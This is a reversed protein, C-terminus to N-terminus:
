GPHLFVFINRLHNLLNLLSSQFIETKMVTYLQLPYMLFLLSKNLPIVWLLARKNLVNVM